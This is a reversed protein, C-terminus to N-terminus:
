YVVEISRAGRLASTTEAAFEWIVTGIPKCVASALAHCQVSESEVKGSGNGVSVGRALVSFCKISLEGDDFDRRGTGPEEASKPRQRGTRRSHKM